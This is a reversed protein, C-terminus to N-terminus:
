GQAPVTYGEGEIAAVIQALTAPAEFSLAVTTSPVDVVARKVGPVATAAWEISTKCHHCHIDPVTLTIETM